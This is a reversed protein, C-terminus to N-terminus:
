VGNLLIYSNRVIKLSCFLYPLSRSNLFKKTTKVKIDVQVKVDLLGLPVRAGLSKFIPALIGHHDELCVDGKNAYHQNNDHLCLHVIYDM